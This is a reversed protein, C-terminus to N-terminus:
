LILNKIIEDVYLTGDPPRSYPMDFNEAQINKRETPRQCGIEQIVESEKRFTEM